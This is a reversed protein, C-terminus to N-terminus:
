CFDKVIWILKQSFIVLPTTPTPPYTVSKNPWMVLYDWYLDTMVAYLPEIGNPVLMESDKWKEKSQTLVTHWEHSEEPLGITLVRHKWQWPCLDLGLWPVLIGCTMCQLWFFFYDHTMWQTLMHIMWANMCEPLIVVLLKLQCAIKESELTLLVHRKRVTQVSTRFNIRLDHEWRHFKPFPDRGGLVCLWLFVLAYWQLLDLPHVAPSFLLHEWCDNVLPFCRLLKSSVTHSIWGHDMKEIREKQSISDWNLKSPFVGLKLGHIM